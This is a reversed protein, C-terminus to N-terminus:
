HETLSRIEDSLDLLNTPQFDVIASSRKDTSRLSKRKLKVTATPTDFASLDDM